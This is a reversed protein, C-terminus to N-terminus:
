LLANLLPDGQISLSIRTHYPIETYICVVLVWVYEAIGPQCSGVYIM